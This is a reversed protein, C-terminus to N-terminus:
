ERDQTFLLSYLWTSRQSLSNFVYNFYKGVIRLSYAMNLKTETNFVYNFYKRVIKLSYALNIKPETNVQCEYQGSDTLRVPEITLVWAQSGAPSGVSV